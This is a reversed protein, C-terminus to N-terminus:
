VLVLFPLAEYGDFILVPCFLFFGLVGSGFNKGFNIDNRRLEDKTSKHRGLCEEMSSQLDWVKDSIM